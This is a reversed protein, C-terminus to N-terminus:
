LCSDGAAVPPDFSSRFRSRRLSGVRLIRSAAWAARCDFRIEDSNCNRGMQHSKIFLKLRDGRFSGLNIWSLIPSSRTRTVDSDAFLKV